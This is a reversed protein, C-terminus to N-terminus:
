YYTLKLKNKIVNIIQQQAKIQSAKEQESKAIIQDIKREQTHMQAYRETQSRLFQWEKITNLEAKATNIETQFFVQNQINKLKNEAQKLEQAVIEKPSLTSIRFQKALSILSDLNSKYNTKLNPRMDFCGMKFTLDLVSPITAELIIYSVELSTNEVLRFKPVIKKTKGEIANNIVQVLMNQANQVITSSISLYLDDSSGLIVKIKDIRPKCSDVLDKANDVMDPLGQFIELKKSIFEIETKISKLKDREISDDRWGQLNDINEKCRQKIINGVALTNALAFLKASEESPDFDEDKFENFFDIGCQLIEDAVKDAINQYKINSIGLINKLLVLTEEINKFLENGYIEADKPNMKRKKRSYIVHDELLTTPKILITKLFDEKASFQKKNIIELLKNISIIENEEIESQIKNLFLLQIEKKSIISFNDTAATKIDNVFDSELFDLKLSIADELIKVNVKNSQYANNLKLTSLNNFASANKNTISKGETMKAWIASASNIDGEKLSDFAPEDTISNGNYFWFLAANLKDADLNLNSAAFDILKITRHINGLCDFGFETFEKPIEQDAAIYKPIRTIHKNLQIASAGVLLGIIRYPNNKILNM